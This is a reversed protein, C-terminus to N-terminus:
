QIILSLPGTLKDRTSLSWLVLSLPGTGLKDRKMVMSEKLQILFDVIEVEQKGKIWFTMDQWPVM